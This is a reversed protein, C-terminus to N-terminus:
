YAIGMGSVAVPEPKQVQGQSQSRSQPGVGAAEGDHAARSGDHAVTTEAVEDVRAQRAVHSDVYTETTASSSAAVTAAAAAAAADDQAQQIFYGLSTAPSLEGSALRQWAPQKM